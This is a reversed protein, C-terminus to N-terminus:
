AFASVASQLLHRNESSLDLFQIGLGVGRRQNRVTATCDITRLNPLKLRLSLVSGRSFSQSTEFFAGGESFDGPTERTRTFIGDQGLWVEAKVPARPHKRLDM